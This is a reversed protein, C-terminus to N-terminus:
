QAQRGALAQFRPDTRLPDWRPDLRLLLPTPGAPLDTIRELVAIADDTRGAQAMVQSATTAHDVGTLADKEIPLLEMAAAAETAADDNRGLGAYAFGLALHFIPEDPQAKSASDALVRAREFAARAATKDSRLQHVWGAALPAPMYMAQTNFGAPAAAIAAEAEAWDRNYLAVLYRDHPLDSDTTSSLLPDTFFAQWADTKGTRELEIEGMRHAINYDDPALSRARTCAAAAEDYRWSSRLTLCLEYWAESNRPDLVTVRKFTEISEPWRGRRRLIAAITNHVGADGPLGRVALDLEALAQGYDRYARYWFLGMARHGQPLDPELRLATEAGIRMHARRIESRDIRFWYFQGHVESLEAHALAFDPDLEIARGYLREAAHLNEALRGPRRHYEIAQLYSDYAESNETPRSALRKREGSTLRAQLANAIQVAIDSQISFVDTLDRDYTEVWLHEDTNADILTAQVRVRNDIRQVSGEVIVGAGLEHGIQKLNQTRGAYALVSTRSIVKLDGLKALQTILEDHIGGALHANEQNTSRNEFPLVAIIKRDGAGAVFSADGRRVMMAAGTATVLIAGLMLLEIARARQAGKEGHFWALVIAALILIGLVVTAMRGVLTSWGFFDGLLGIGQLVVWAGAMYAITWQFVKRVRLQQIFGETTSNM